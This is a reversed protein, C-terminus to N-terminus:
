ICFLFSSSLFLYTNEFAQNALYFSNSTKEYYVKSKTLWTTQLNCGQYVHSSERISLLLSDQWVDLISNKAFVTLSWFGSLTMWFHRWQSPNPLPNGFIDFTVLSPLLPHWDIYHRWGNRKKFQDYMKNTWM